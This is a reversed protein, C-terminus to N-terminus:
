FLLLVHTGNWYSLVHSEQVKKIIYKLALNFLCPPLDTISLSSCPVSEQKTTVLTLCRRRLLSSSKLSVVVVSGGGLRLTALSVCWGPPIDQKIEPAVCKCRRNGCVQVVEVIEFTGLCHFETPIPRRRQVATHVYLYIGVNRLFM